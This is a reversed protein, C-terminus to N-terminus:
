TEPLQNHPPTDIILIVGLDSLMPALWSSYLNQPTNERQKVDLSSHNSRVWSWFPMSTAMFPVNISRRLKKTAETLTEPWVTMWENADSLPMQLRSYRRCQQPSWYRTYPNLHFPPARSHASRRRHTCRGTALGSGCSEDRKMTEYLQAPYSSRSLCVGSLKAIDIM